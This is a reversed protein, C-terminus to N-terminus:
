LWVNLFKGNNNVIEKWVPLSMAADEGWMDEGFV